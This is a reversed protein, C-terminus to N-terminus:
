RLTVGDIIAVATSTFSYVGSAEQRRDGSVASIVVDKKGGLRDLTGEAYGKAKAADVDAEGTAHEQKGARDM